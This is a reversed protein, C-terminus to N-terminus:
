FCHLPFDMGSQSIQLNYLIFIRSLYHFIKECICLLICFSWFLSALQAFYYYWPLLELLHASSPPFCNQAEMRKGSSIGSSNESMLKGCLWRRRVIHYSPLSRMYSFCENILANVALRSCASTNLINNNSVVQYLITEPGESPFAPQLRTICTCLHGSFCCTCHSPNACHGLDFVICNCVGCVLHSEDHSRPVQSETIIPFQNM